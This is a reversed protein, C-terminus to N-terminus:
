FRNSPHPVKVQFFMSEIDALFAIKGIRFRLLVGVLMNTLDPGQILEMNLCYDRFEVSCDFVTGIKNKAPHYVGFHPLYWTSSTQNEDAEVAYGNQLIKRMFECYDKRFQDSRIMKNKASMLRKATQSRNNPVVKNPYKFPLPLQYHGDVKVVENNMLRIFKRFKRDENSLDKKETCDESFDHHYIMKLNDSVLKDLVHTDVKFSLRHCSITEELSMKTSM